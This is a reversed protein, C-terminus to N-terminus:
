EEDDLPRIVERTDYLDFYDNAYYKKKLIKDTDTDFEIIENFIWTHVAYETGEPMFNVKVIPKSTPTKYVLSKSKNKVCMDTNMRIRIDTQRPFQTTYYLDVNKKRTQTVFYSFIRNRGKGASRSDIWVHIEDILFICKHFQKSSSTYAKIDEITVLEHPFSLGSMNSYIKYGKRQKKYAYKMMTLTKGSGKSGIFGVIM